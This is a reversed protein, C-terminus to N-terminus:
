PEQKPLTARRRQNWAKTALRRGQANEADPDCGDGDAEPGQAGCRNCIVAFQGFDMCEVFADGCACFPCPKAKAIRAM